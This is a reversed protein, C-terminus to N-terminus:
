KILDELNNIYWQEAGGIYQSGYSQQAAANGGYFRLGYTSDGATQLKITKVDFSELIKKRYLRPVGQSQLYESAQKVGDYSYVSTSGGEVVNEVTDGIAGTLTKSRVSDDIVDPVERRFQSNLNLVEEGDQVIPKYGTVTFSQGAASLLAGTVWTMAIGEVTVDEDDLAAKGAYIATDAAGDGIAMVAHTALTAGTKGASGGVAAAVGGVVAGLAGSIAGWMYGDTFGDLFDEGNCVSTVGKVLGVIAAVKAASIVAGTSIACAPCLVSVALVGIIAGTGVVLRFTTTEHLPTEAYLNGMDYNVFVKKDYMEYIDCIDSLTNKLINLRSLADQLRRDYSDLAAIDLYCSYKCNALFQKSKEFGILYEKLQLRIQELEAPQKKLEDLDVYLRVGENAMIM